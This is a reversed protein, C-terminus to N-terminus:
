PADIFGSRAPHITFGGWRIDTGLDAGYVKAFGQPVTEIRSDFAFSSRAKVLNM